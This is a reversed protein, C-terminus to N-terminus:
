FLRSRQVEVHRRPRRVPRRASNVWLEEENGLTWSQCLDNHEDGPELRFVGFDHAQVTGPIAACTDADKAYEGKACAKCAEDAGNVVCIQQITTCADRKEVCRPTDAGGADKEPAPKGTSPHTDDSSCALAFLAFPFLVALRM